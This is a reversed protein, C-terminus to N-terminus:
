PLSTIRNNWDNPSYQRYQSSTNVQDPLQQGNADLGRPQTQIQTTVPYLGTKLGRTNEGGDRKSASCLPDSEEPQRGCGPCVEATYPVCFHCKICRTGPEGRAEDLTAYPDETDEGQAMGIIYDGLRIPLRRRRPTQYPPPREAQYGIGRVPPYLRVRERTPTMLEEVRPYLITRLSSSYPSLEPEPTAQQRLDPASPTRPAREPGPTRQPSM